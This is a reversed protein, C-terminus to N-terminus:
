REVEVDAVWIDSEVQQVTLYLRDPAVAIWRLGLVNANDYAVVLRPEGGRVPIAWIGETGDSRRAATYITSGDQSFVRYSYTLVLGDSTPDYRWVEEGDRSVLALRQTQTGGGVMVLWDCLVGSGDPAWDTPWCDADPPQTPEGWPDGIAERSVVCMRLPVEGCMFAIDLGSPSWSPRFLWRDSAAQIPPGGDASVVLLRMPSEDVAYAIETGDPSWRPDVDDMPSGVILTPNGEGTPKRYLDHNGSHGLDSSYVIQRGDPSVGHAEVVANDSTVPYGDAISTTGPGIPYSWINQRVSIKAFALIRGASSYSITHADTLGAVKRPAGRPGSAAVEVVYAERPGDRSSAFLLHDTDLWVPSM